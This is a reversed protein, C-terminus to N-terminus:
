GHVGLPNAAADASGGRCAARPLRRDGAPLRRDRRRSGAGSGTHKADQAQRDVTRVLFCYREQSCAAGGRPLAARCGRFRSQPTETGADDGMWLAGRSLRSRGESIAKHGGQLSRSGAHLRHDYFVVVGVRTGEGRVAYSHSGAPMSLAADRLSNRITDPGHALPLFMAHLEEASCTAFTPFPM